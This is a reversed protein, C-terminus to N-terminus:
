AEAAEQKAVQLKPRYSHVKRAHVGAGAAIATARASQMNRRIRNTRATSTKSM